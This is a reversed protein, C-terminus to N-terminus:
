RAASHSIISCGVYRRCKFALSIIM